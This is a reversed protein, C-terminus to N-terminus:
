RRAPYDFGQEMRKGKGAFIETGGAHQRKGANGYGDALDHLRKGIDGAGVDSIANLPLRVVMDLFDNGAPQRSEIGFTGTIQSELRVPVDLLDDLGMDLVLQAAHYM